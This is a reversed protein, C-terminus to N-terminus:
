IHGTYRNVMVAVFLVKTYTHIYTHIYTYKLRGEYYNDFEIHNCIKRNWTYTQRYTYSIYTQILLYKLCICCYTSVWMHNHTISTSNNFAATRSNLTLSLVQKSTVAATAPFFPIFFYTNEKSRAPSLTIVCVYMWENMCEYMWEYYVYM